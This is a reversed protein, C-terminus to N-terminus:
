SAEFIPSGISLDGFTRQREFAVLDLAARVCLWNLGGDGEGFAGFDGELRGLWDLCLPLRVTKGQKCPLIQNSCSRHTASVV